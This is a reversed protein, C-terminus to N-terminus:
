HIKEKDEIKYIFLHKPLVNWDRHTVFRLKSYHGYMKELQEIQVRVNEPYDNWKARELKLFKIPGYKVKPDVRNSARSKDFKEFLSTQKIHYGGEKKSIQFGDLFYIKM